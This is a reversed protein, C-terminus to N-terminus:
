RSWALAVGLFVAHVLLWVALMWPLSRRLRGAFALLPLPALAAFLTAAASPDASRAQARNRVLLDVTEAPAGAALQQWAFAIDPLALLRGNSAYLWPEFVVALTMGCGVLVAPVRHALVVVVRRTVVRRFGPFAAGCEPCLGSAGLGTLDYSCGICAAETLLVERTEPRLRIAALAAGALLTVLGVPWGWDVSGSVCASCALVPVFM